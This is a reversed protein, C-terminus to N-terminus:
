FEEWCRPSLSCLPSVEGNRLDGKKALTIILGRTWDEPVREEQLNHEFEFEFKIDFVPLAKAIVRALPEHYLAQCNWISNSNPFTPKQPSPFVTPEIVLRQEPFSGASRGRVRLSPLGSVLSRRFDLRPFGSSGSSGSFFRESCILSCVVFEVWMHRRIRSDFGPCMPSLRASEDSRWGQEGPFLGYLIYVTTDTDARLLDATINDIGPAGGSKTERLTSEIKKRITIEVTVISDNMVNIEDVEARVEPVPRRLIKM